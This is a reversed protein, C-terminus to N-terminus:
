AATWKIDRRLPLSLVVLFGTKNAHINVTGDEGYFAALRRRVNRLGSGSEESAGFPVPVASGGDDEIMLQLRDGVQNCIVSLTVLRRSPQVVHKVANEVIPQLLFTPVRADLLDDVCDFTVRLRGAFRATEIDLYAQAIAWEEDLTVEAEPDAEFTLRLFDSLRMTMQDAEAVANTVILSSISNLTNFLFHPNLQFRLAALEAGQAASRAEVLRRASDRVANESLRLGLALAYFGYILVFPMLSRNFLEALPMSRMGMSPGLIQMLIADILAHLLALATTVLAVLVTMAPNRLRRAFMIFGALAGCFIVGLGLTMGQLVKLADPIPKGSAIDQAAWLLLVMVWFILTMAAGVAFDKLKPRFTLLRNV